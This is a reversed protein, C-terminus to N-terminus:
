EELWLLCLFVYDPLQNVPKQFHLVLNRQENILLNCSCLEQGATVLHKNGLPIEMCGLLVTVVYDVSDDM